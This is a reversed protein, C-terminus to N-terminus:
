VSGYFSLFDWRAELSDKGHKSQLRQIKRADTAHLDNDDTETWIGRKNEPLTRDKKMSRLVEEALDTNMSSAKLVLLVDDISLGNIAHADIWADTQAEVDSVESEAAPSSSVPAPSSPIVHDWGGEPEAIDFDPVVTEGRFLAQTGQRGPRSYHVGAATSESESSAEAGPDEDDWGEDPPPIEYDIPDTSEQMPSDSNERGEDPSPIDLDIEQTIDRFIDQTDATRYEPESLTESPQRGFQSEIGVFDDESEDEEEDESEIFLPSDARDGRGTPARDPTSAIELLPEFRDQRVRKPTRVPEPPSSSPVEEELIARKRKSNESAAPSAQETLKGRYREDYSEDFDTASDNEKPSRRELRTSELQMSPSEPRYSPSRSKRSIGSDDKFDRTPKPGMPPTSARSKNPKMREVAASVTQKSLQKLYRPRM